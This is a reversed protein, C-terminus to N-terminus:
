RRKMKYPIAVGNVITCIDKTDFVGDSQDEFRIYIKQTWYGDLIAEEVTGFGRKPHLVKDSNEYYANPNRKKLRAATKSVIYSDVPIQNWRNLYQLINFRVVDKANYADSAEEPTWNKDEFTAVRALEWWAVPGSGILIIIEPATKESLSVPSALLTLM